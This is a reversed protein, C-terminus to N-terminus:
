ARKRKTKSLIDGVKLGKLAKTQEQAEKTAANERDIENCKTAWEEVRKAYNDHATRSANATPASPKSPYPKIASKKRGGKAATKKGGGKIRSLISM